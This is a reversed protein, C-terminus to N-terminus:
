IDVEGLLAGCFAVDACSEVAIGVVVGLELYNLLSDHLTSVSFCVFHIFLSRFKCLINRSEQGLLYYCIAVGLSPLSMM